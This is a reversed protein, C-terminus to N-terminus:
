GWHTGLDAFSYAKSEPFTGPKPNVGTQLAEEHDVTCKVLCPEYPRRSIPNVPSVCCACTESTDAALEAFSISRSILSGDDCPATVKDDRGRSWFPIRQQQSTECVFYWTCIRIAVVVVGSICSILAIVEGRFAAGFRFRLGEIAGCKSARVSFPECSRM